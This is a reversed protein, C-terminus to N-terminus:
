ALELDALAIKKYTVKMPYKEKIQEIMKTIRESLLQTEAATKWYPSGSVFYMIHYGYETQVIGTDGPQRAMDVSWALFNEVYSSTPNINEYLGGTSASGPDETYVPVLAAFSEETAEGSKWEELIREAEALCEDWKAQTFGNILEEAAETPATSAETPETAAETAATTAETPETAATNEEATEDQKPCVLIHRVSSELGGDKTIGNQEFAELNEEFYAAVDEESPLLKEYETANYENSLANIRIYEMYDEVTCAPGLLDKIMADASEYEGEAAQTELSEPIKALEAAMEEPLAFGASEAELVMSQFSEWTKLAAEIFYQEWTMSEDFYCNQDSLPKTLDMGISSLYSSYYNMFDLVQIRYYIQLQANTLKASGMTAVVDDAYEPVEEEAVTYDTKRYINNEPLKIEMGMAMLLVVALICLGLVGGVALLVWPWVKKQKPAPAEPQEYLSEDYFGFSEADSSEENSTEECPTEEEPIEEAPTEEVPAEEVPTEEVPAQEPVSQTEPTSGALIEEVSTEVLVKGCMPCVKTTEPVEANCFKCIM